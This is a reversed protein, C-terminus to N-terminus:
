GPRSPPTPESPSTSAHEEPTRPFYRTNHRNGVSKVLGARRLRRMPSGLARASVDLHEALVAISEGPHNCIMEYLRESLAAVQAVSRKSTPAATSTRRRSSPPCATDSFARRLAASAASECARLHAQVLQEVQEGLDEPKATSTM